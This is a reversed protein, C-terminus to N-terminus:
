FSIFCFIYSYYLDVFIKSKNYRGKIEKKRILKIFYNENESLYMQGKEAIIVKDNGEESTHDYIMVGELDIGNELKKDIKISYGNLENYFMGEKINLAPKQKRIDYLLSGAKLNAYPMFYNSFLFSSASVILIFVLLPSMCKKLSIGASKIAM